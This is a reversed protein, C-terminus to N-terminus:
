EMGWPRTWPRPIRLEVRQGPECGSARVKFHATPTWEPIMHLFRVANMRAWLPAGNEASIQERRRDTNVVANEGYVLGPTKIRRDAYEDDEFSYDPVLFVTAPAKGLDIEIGPLIEIGHDKTSAPLIWTPAM